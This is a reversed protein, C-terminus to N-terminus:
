TQSADDWICGKVTSGRGQAGRPEEGGRDEMSMGVPSIGTSHKRRWRQDERSPATTASHPRTVIHHFRKGQQVHRVWKRRLRLTARPRPKTASLQQSGGLACWVSPLYWRPPRGGSEPCRRPSSQLEQPRAHAATKTSVPSRPWIVSRNALSHFPVGAPDQPQEASDFLSVLRPIKVTRESPGVPKENHVMEHYCILSTKKRSCFKAVPWKCLEFTGHVMEARQRSRYDSCKYLHAWTM